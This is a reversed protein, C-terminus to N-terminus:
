SAPGTGGITAHVLLLDSSPVGAHPPVLVDGTGATRGGAGDTATVSGRLVVAFGNRPLRDTVDVRHGASSRRTMVNFVVCPGDVLRVATPVDGPFAHADGPTRYRATGQGDVSLDFGAGEVLVCTRDTGPFHSFAVDADLWALGVFWGDGEALDAKRGLGNRWPTVALESRRVVTM